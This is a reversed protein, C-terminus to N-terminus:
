ACVMVVPPFIVHLDVVRLGHHWSLSFLREPLPQEPFEDLVFPNIHEHNRHQRIVDKELVHGHGLHDNGKLLEVDETSNLVARPHSQIVKDLKKLKFIAPADDAVRQQQIQIGDQKCERRRDDERQHEVLHVELAGFLQHLGDAVHRVEYGHHHHAAQDAIETGRVTYDIGNHLQDIQFPAAGIQQVARLKVSRDM